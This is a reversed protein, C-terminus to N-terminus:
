NYSTELRQAIQRHMRILLLAGAIILALAVYQSTSFPGYIGRLADGRYYEIIFRWTGYGILYAALNRGDRNGRIFLLAQFVFLALLFASELGPVNLLPVGDPAVFASLEPIPYEPYVVAFPNEISVEEGYCCGGLLCGIRGFAHGLPVVVAGIDIMPLIPTKFLKCFFAVGAIAGLLGGYFVIEGFMARLTEFFTLGAYRGPDFPWTILNVIPKFLYSGALGFALGMLGALKFDDYRKDKKARLLILMAIYAVILGTLVMVGYASVEKGFIHLIPHM